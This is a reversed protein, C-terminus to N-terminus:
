VTSKVLAPICLCQKRCHARSSTRDKIRFPRAFRAFKVKRWSNRHFPMGFDLSELHDPSHVTNRLANKPFCLPPVVHSLTTGSVHHNM